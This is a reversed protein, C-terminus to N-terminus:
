KWHSKWRQPPKIKTKKKKGPRIIKNLKPTYLRLKIKLGRKERIESFIHKLTKKGPV